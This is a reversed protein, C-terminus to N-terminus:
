HFVRLSQRFIKGRTTGWTILSKEQSKGLAFKELCGRCSKWQKDWVNVPLGKLMSLYVNVSLCIFIYLLDDMFQLANAFLWQSLSVNEALGHTILVKLCAICTCITFLLKSLLNQQAPALWLGFFCNHEHLCHVFLLSWLRELPVVVAARLLLLLTVTAPYSTCQLLQLFHQWGIKVKQKGKEAENEACKEAETEANFQNGLLPPSGNCENVLICPFTAFTKSNEFLVKQWSLM